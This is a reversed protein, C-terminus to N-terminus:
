LKELNEQNDTKDPQGQQARYFFVLDVDADELLLSFNAGM